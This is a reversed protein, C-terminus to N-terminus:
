THALYSLCAPYKTSFKLRCYQGAMRGLRHCSVRREWQKVQFCTKVIRYTMLSTTCQLLHQISCAWSDSLSRSAGYSQIHVHESNCHSLLCYYTVMNNTPLNFTSSM